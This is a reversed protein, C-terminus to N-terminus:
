FKPLKQNKSLAQAFDLLIGATRRNARNTHRVERAPTKREPMRNPPDEDAFRNNRYDWPRNGDFKVPAPPAGARIPIAAPLTATPKSFGHLPHWIERM